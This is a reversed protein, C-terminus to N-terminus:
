KLLSFFQILFNVEKWSKNKKFVTRLAFCNLEDSFHVEIIKYFQLANKGAFILELCSSDTKEIAFEPKDNNSFTYVKSSEDDDKAFDDCSKNELQMDVCLLGVSLFDEADLTDIFKQITM